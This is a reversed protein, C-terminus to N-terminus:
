HNVIVATVEPPLLPRRISVNSTISSVTYYLPLIVVSEDNTSSEGNSKNAGAGDIVINEGGVVPQGISYICKRIWNASVHVGHDLLEQRESPRFATRHQAVLGASVPNKAIQPSAREYLTFLIWSVPILVFRYPPLFTSPPFYRPIAFASSLECLAVRKPLNSM